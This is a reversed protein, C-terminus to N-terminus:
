LSKCHTASPPRATHSSSKSTQLPACCWIRKRQLLASCSRRCTCRPCNTLCRPSPDIVSELKHATFSCVCNTFPIPKGAAPRARREHDNDLGDTRDLLGHAEQRRIRVWRDDLGHAAQDASLYAPLRDFRSRLGHAGRRPLTADERRSGLRLIVGISPFVRLSRHYRPKLRPPARAQTSVEPVDWLAMTCTKAFSHSSLRSSCPAWSLVRQM